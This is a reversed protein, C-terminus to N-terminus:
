SERLQQLKRGIFALSITMCFYSVFYMFDNIGAVHWTGQHAQYLFIYDCFYQFVLSFLLCLM